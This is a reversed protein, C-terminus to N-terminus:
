YGLKELGARLLSFIARKRRNWDLVEAETWLIQTEREDVIPEDLSHKDTETRVGYHRDNGHARGKQWIEVSGIKRKEHEDGHPVLEVTVRIV